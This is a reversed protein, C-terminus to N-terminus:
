IHVGEASMQLINSMEEVKKDFFGDLDMEKQITNNYIM